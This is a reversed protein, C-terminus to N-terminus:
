KLDNWNLQSLKEEFNLLRILQEKTINKGNVYIATSSDPDTGLLQIICLGWYDYNYFKAGQKIFADLEQLQKKQSYRPSHLKGRTSTKVEVLMCQKTNYDQLWFDIDTAVLDTLSDRLNKRMWKSFDLRRENQDELRTM